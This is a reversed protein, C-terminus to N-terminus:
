PNNKPLCYESLAESIMKSREGLFVAKHLDECVKDKEEQPMAVKEKSALVTVESNKLLTRDSGFQYKRIRAFARNSLANKMFPELTLAKDFDVISQDFQLDNLKLTARSFYAIAYNSDLEIAKTCYKIAAKIDGEKYSDDSKSMLQTVKVLGPDPIVKGKKIFVREKVRGTLLLEWDGPFLQQLSPGAGRDAHLVAVPLALKKALSIREM